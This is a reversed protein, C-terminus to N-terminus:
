FRILGAEAEVKVKVPVFYYVCCLVAATETMNSPDKSPSAGYVKVGDRPSALRPWSCKEISISPYKSIKSHLASQMRFTTYQEVPELLAKEKNFAGELAKM